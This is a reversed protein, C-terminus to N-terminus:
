IHNSNLMSQAPKKRIFTHELATGCATITIIEIGVLNNYTCPYPTNSWQKFIKEFHQNNTADFLYRSYMVESDWIKPKLEQPNRVPDRMLHIVYAERRTQKELLHHHLRHYVKADATTLVSTSNNIQFFRETQYRIFSPPYNNLLLALIINIREKNFLNFDSSVRAARLLETFPINRYTHKPHTSDYLLIYSRAAPKHFLQTTLTGNSNVVTIDLFNLSAAIDYNIKINADKSNAKKLLFRM